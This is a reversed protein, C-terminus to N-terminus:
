PGSVYESVMKRLEDGYQQPVIMLGFPAENLLILNVLASESKKDKRIGGLLGDTAPSYAVPISLHRGILNQIRRCLHESLMGKRIALHNVLDIGWAVALGHPLEYNSQTEM